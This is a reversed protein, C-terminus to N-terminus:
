YIIQDEILQACKRARVSWATRRVCLRQAARARACRHHAARAWGRLALGLAPLDRQKGDSAHAHQLLRGRATAPRHVRAGSEPVARCSVGANQLTHMAEYDERQETWESIAADIKQQQKAGARHTQWLLMTRCTMGASSPASLAGNKTAPLQLPLGATAARAAISM